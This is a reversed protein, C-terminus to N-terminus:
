YQFFIIKYSSLLNWVLLKKYKEEEQQSVFRVSSIVNIQKWHTQVCQSTWTDTASVHLSTYSNLKMKVGAPLDTVELSSVQFVTVNFWIIYFGNNSRLQRM